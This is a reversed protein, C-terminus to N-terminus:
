NDGAAKQETWVYMKMLCHGGGGGLYISIICLEESHSIKKVTASEDAPSLARM